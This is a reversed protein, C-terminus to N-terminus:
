NLEEEILTILTIMFAILGILELSKVVLEFINKKM